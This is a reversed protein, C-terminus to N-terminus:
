VGLTSIIMIELDHTKFKQRGLDWMKNQLENNIDAITHQKEGPRWIKHKRAGSAASECGTETKMKNNSSRRMGVSTKRQSVKSM